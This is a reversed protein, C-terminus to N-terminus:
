MVRASPMGIARPIYYPTKRGDSETHWEYYGSCPVICRQHRLATIFSPKEAMTEARANIILSFDRPDKVWGPVLGWRVLRAVRRGTEEWIAVIPQTPAINYRDPFELEHPTSFFKGLDHPTLTVAFRGCM